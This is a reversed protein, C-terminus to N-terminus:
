VSNDRAMKQAESIIMYARVAHACAEIILNKIYFGTETNLRGERELQTLQEAWLASWGSIDLCEELVEPALNKNFFSNEGYERAGKELRALTKNIFEEYGRAGGARVVEQLFDIEYQKDRKSM